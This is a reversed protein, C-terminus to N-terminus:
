KRKHTEAQKKKRSSCNIGSSVGGLGFRRHSGTYNCPVSRSAHLLLQAGQRPGHSASSDPNIRPMREFFCIVAKLSLYQKTHFSGTRKLWCGNCSCDPFYSNLSFASGELQDIVSVQLREMPWFPANGGPKLIPFSLTIRHSCFVKHIGEIFLKKM